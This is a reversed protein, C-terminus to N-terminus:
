SREHKATVSPVATLEHALGYAVARRRVSRWYYSVGSVVVGISWFGVLTAWQTRTTAIGSPQPQTMAVCGILALITLVFVKSLVLAMCLRLTARKVGNTGQRIVLVNDSVIDWALYMVWAANGGMYLTWVLEIPHVSDPLM